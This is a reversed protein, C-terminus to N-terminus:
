VKADMVEMVKKASKELDAYEKAALQEAHKQSRALILDPVGGPSVGEGGSFGDDLVVPGEIAESEQREPDLLRGDAVLAKIVLEAGVAVAASESGHAKHYVHLAYCISGACVLLNTTSWVAIVVLYDM